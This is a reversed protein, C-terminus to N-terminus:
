IANNEIHSLLEEITKSNVRENYIRLIRIAEDKKGLQNKSKAFFVWSREDDSNLENAIISWKESNKYDRKDYYLKALIIAFNYSHSKEFRRELEDISIKFNSSQIEFKLLKRKDQTNTSNNNKFDANNLKINMIKGDPTKIIIQKKKNHMNKFLENQNINIEHSKISAQHNKETFNESGLAVSILLIALLYKTNNKGYKAQTIYSRKFDIINNLILM